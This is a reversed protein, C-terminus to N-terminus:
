SAFALIAFLVIAFVVCVAMATLAAVLRPSMERGAVRVLADGAAGNASTVPVTRTTGAATDASTARAAGTAGTAGNAAIVPVTGTAGATGNASTVPVSRAAGATGNASTLPAAGAAGATANPTTVPTTRAAGASGNASTVPTTRAAGATGNATTGPAVGAIPGANAAPVRPRPVDALPAILGAAALPADGLPTAAPAVAPPVVGTPAVATPVAEPPVVDTPAAQIPAVEATAADQPAIGAGLAAPAGEPRAVDPLAMEGPLVAGGPAMPAHAGGAPAIPAPAQGARATAALAIGPVVAAAAVERAIEAGAPPSALAQTRGTYGPLPEGAGAMDEAVRDLAALVASPDPSAVMPGVPTAYSGVRAGLAAAASSGASRTPLVSSQAPIGRLARWREEWEETTGGCGKVFAALVPLDPLAPGAEAARIRDYPFHSRAALEAHGLGAGSRLQRLERLFQAADDGSAGYGAAQRVETKRHEM